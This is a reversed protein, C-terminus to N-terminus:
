LRTLSGDAEQSRAEEIIVKTSRTGQQVAGADLMELFQTLTRIGGAAKVEVAPSCTERMLRVDELKSGSPGYGTSTKVFDAGVEECVTCCTVIEERTLLANEFIVKVIVNRKHAADVVAKVDQKVYDWDGSKVHGIPMVLDLEDAGDDMAQEAEAVKVATTSNGHPFSVGSSIKVSSGDLVSKCLSVHHPKCCVSGVDYEICFKCDQVVEDHGMDPRLLSHNIMSAVEKVTIKEQSGM